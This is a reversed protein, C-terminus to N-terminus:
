KIVEANLHDHSEFRINYIGDHKTVRVPMAVIIVWTYLVHEKKRDIRALTIQKYDSHAVALLLPSYCIM